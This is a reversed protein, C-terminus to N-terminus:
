PSVSNHWEGYVGSGTWNTHQINEEDNTNTNTCILIETQTQIKILMQIERTINSTGLYSASRRVIFGSGITRAEQGIM